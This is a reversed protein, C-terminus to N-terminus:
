VHAKGIQIQTIHALIRRERTKLREFLALFDGTSITEGDALDWKAVYKMYRLSGGIVILNQFDSQRSNIARYYNLAGSIYEALLANFDSSNIKM